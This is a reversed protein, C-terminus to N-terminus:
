SLFQLNMHKFDTSRLYKVLKMFSAKFYSREAICEQLIALLSTADELMPKSTELVTQRGDDYRRNRRRNRGEWM